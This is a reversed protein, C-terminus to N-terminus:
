NRLYTLVIGADENSQLIADDEEDYEFDMEYGNSFTIHIAEGNLESTGDIEQGMAAYNVNGADDFSLTAELQSGDLGIESVEDLTYADGDPGVIGQVTWDGSIASFAGADEGSDAYDMGDIILSLADLMEVMADNIELMDERGSFDDESLEGMEDIVSKAETLLEEIDDDQAIEDNMYLDEVQQYADTLAVFNDQLEEFTIEEDGADEKTEAAKEETATTQTQSSADEESDGCGVLLPACLMGSLLLVAIKKKM